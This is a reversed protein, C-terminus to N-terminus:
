GAQTTSEPCSASSFESEEDAPSARPQPSGCSYSHRPSQSTQSTYSKYRIWMSPELLPGNYQFSLSSSPHTTPIQEPQSVNYTAPQPNERFVTNNGPQCVSPYSSQQYPALPFPEAVCAPLSQMVRSNSATILDDDASSQMVRSNSATILDDHASYPAYPGTLHNQSTPHSDQFTPTHDHHSSNTASQDDVARSLPRAAGLSMNSSHAAPAHTSQRNNEGESSM